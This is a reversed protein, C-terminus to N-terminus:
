RSSFIHNRPLSIPILIKMRKRMNIVNFDRITLLYDNLTCSILRIPQITQITILAIGALTSYPISISKRVTIKLITNRYIAM